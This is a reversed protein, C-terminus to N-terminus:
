RATPQPQPRYLRSRDRRLQLDARPGSSTRKRFGDARRRRHHNRTTFKPQSPTMLTGTRGVIGNITCNSKAVSTSGAFLSGAADSIWLDATLCGRTSTGGEGGTLTAQDGGGVTATSLAISVRMLAGHGGAFNAFFKSQARDNSISAVEFTSRGSL